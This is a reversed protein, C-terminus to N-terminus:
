RTIQGELLAEAPMAALDAELKRLVEALQGPEADPALTVNRTAAEALKSDDAQALAERYAGLRGGLVSMLRGIHKGVVMDGVGSERLQGDMDEVFLETLLVSPAILAEDKEMRLLTFCLVTTIMDFRGAVSDAVHADAYWHKERSIEVVRHWLPRLSDRPDTNHRILRSLLSM